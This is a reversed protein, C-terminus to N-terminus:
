LRTIKCAVRGVIRVPEILDVEFPDYGANLPKCRIRRRVGAERVLEVRRIIPAGTDDVVLAFIGGQSVDTDDLDIVARDGSKLIDGM